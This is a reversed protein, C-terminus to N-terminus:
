RSNKFSSLLDHYNGYSMHEVRCTGMSLLTHPKDRGIYATNGNVQCIYVEVDSHLHFYMLLGCLVLFLPIAFVETIDQM